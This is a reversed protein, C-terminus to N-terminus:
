WHNRSDRLRFFMEQSFEPSSPDSTRLFPNAQREAGLSTGSAECYPLGLEEAVQQCFVRNTEGYDHGPCLTLHDALRPMVDKFTEFLVGVDGGNKCNGCGHHFLCDGTILFRDGVELSVSCMTHGPTEHVRIPIDALLNCSGIELQDTQCPAQANEHALVRCNHTQVLAHNGGVHDWHRHTNVIGILRVKLRELAAEVEDARFPDVIIAEGSSRNGILYGFNRYSSEFYIPEFIM